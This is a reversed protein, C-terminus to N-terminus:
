WELSVPDTDIQHVGQALTPRVRGGSDMSTNIGQLSAEVNWREIENM